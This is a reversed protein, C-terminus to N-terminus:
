KCLPVRNDIWLIRAFPKFLNFFHLGSFVTVHETQTILDLYHSGEIKNEDKCVDKQLNEAICKYSISMFVFAIISITHRRLEIFCGQEEKTLRHKEITESYNYKNNVVSNWFRVAKYHVSLM